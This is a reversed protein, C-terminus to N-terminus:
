SIRLSRCVERAAATSLTPLMPIFLNQQQLMDATSLAIRCLQEVLNAAHLELCQDILTLNSGHANARKKMLSSLRVRSFSYVLEESQPGILRSILAREDLAALGPVTQTGYVSHFLGAMWVTRDHNWSLLVEATALLHNALTAGAHRQDWAGRTHLFRLAATLDKDHEARELISTSLM